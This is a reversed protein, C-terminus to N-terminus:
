SKVVSNGFSDELLNRGTTIGFASMLGKVQTAIEDLGIYMTGTSCNPHPTCAQAMALILSEVAQQRKGANNWLDMVRDKNAEREAIDMDSCDLDAFTKYDDGKGIALFGDDDRWLEGPTHNTDPIVQFTNNGHLETIHKRMAAVMLATEENHTSFRPKDYTLTIVERKTLWKRMVTVEAGHQNFVYTYHNAPDVKKFPYLTIVKAGEKLNNDPALGFGAIGLPTYTYVAVKFEVIM